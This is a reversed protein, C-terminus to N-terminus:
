VYNVNILRDKRYDIDLYYNNIKDLKADLRDLRKNVTKNLYIFQESVVNFAIKIYYLILSVTICLLFVFM